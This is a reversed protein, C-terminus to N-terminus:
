DVRFRSPSVGYKQVFSSSFTTPDTFGCDYAIASVPEQSSKLLIASQELRRRKIYRAPTENFTKKFDRKFSSISRNCVFALEEMNIQSFINNEIMASFKLKGPYFIESLFKQVSEYRESRLLLMVLEKLKLLALEEDIMEPNEFYEFLSNMYKEILQNPIMKRPPIVEETQDLFRPPAHQYIEHLVDPYLYVAVAECSDVTETGIFHSVYNGCKKILAEKAGIRFAGNSEISEYVGDVVYFFCAIDQLNGQMSSPADMVARQFLPVGRFFITQANESM